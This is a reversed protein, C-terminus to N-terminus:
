GQPAAAEAEIPQLFPEEFGALKPILFNALSRFVTMEGATLPVVFSSSGSGRSTVNLAFMCGGSGDTMPSMKLAKTVAGKSSTGMNPDHFLNLASSSIISGLEVISLGFTQKQDWSYDRSLGGSSAGKNVPAFELLLVGPKTMILDGGRAQWTPKIVKVDMATSGKYVTWSVFRRQTAPGAAESQYARASHFHHKRQAINGHSLRSHVSPRINPFSTIPAKLQQATVCLRQTQMVNCVLASGFGTIRQM